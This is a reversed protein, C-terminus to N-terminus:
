WETRMRPYICVRESPLFLLLDLGGQGLAQDKVRNVLAVIGAAFQRRV